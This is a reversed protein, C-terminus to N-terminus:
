GLFLRFGYQGLFIRFGRPGLFLRFGRQGLFIRFVCQGLFIRFGYQGFFLRFGCQGLFIRFGNQGFIIQIWVIGFIIQIEADFCRYLTYVFAPVHVATDAGSTALRLNLINKPCHPAAVAFMLALQNQMQFKPNSNGHIRNHVNRILYLVAM